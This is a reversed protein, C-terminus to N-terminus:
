FFTNRALRSVRQRLTHNFRELHHTEDGREKNFPTQSSGGSDTYIVACQRYM